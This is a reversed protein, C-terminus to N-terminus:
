LPTGANRKKTDMAVNDKTIENNLTATNKTSQSDEQLVIDGLAAVLDDNPDVASVVPKIVPSSPAVVFDSLTLDIRNLTDLTDVTKM